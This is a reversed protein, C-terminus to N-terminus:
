DLQPLVYELVDRASNYNTVRLKWEKQRTLEASPFRASIKNDSFLNDNLGPRRFYCLLWSENATFAFVNKDGRHVRFDKIFGHDGPQARLSGARGFEIVFLFFAERADETTIRQFLQCYGQVDQKLLM